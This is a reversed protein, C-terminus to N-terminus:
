NWQAWRPATLPSTGSSRATRSALWRRTRCLPRGPMSSRCRAALTLVRVGSSRCCRACRDPMSPAFSSMHGAARTPPRPKRSRHSNRSAPLNGRSPRAGSRLSSWSRGWVLILSTRKTMVREKAGPTHSESATAASASVAQAEMLPQTQRLNSNRKSGAVVVASRNDAPSCFKM